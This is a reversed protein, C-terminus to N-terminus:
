HASAFASSSASSVILVAAIGTYPAPVGQNLNFPLTEALTERRHRLHPSHDRGSSLLASSVHRVRRELKLAWDSYAFNVKGHFLPSPVSAACANTASLNQTERSLYASGEVCNASLCFSWLCVQENRASAHTLRRRDRGRARRGDGGGGAGSPARAIGATRGGEM